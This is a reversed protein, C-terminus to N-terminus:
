FERVKVGNGIDRFSGLPKYDQTTDTTNSSLSEAWAALGELFSPGNNLNCPSNSYFQVMVFDISSQMTFLSISESPM